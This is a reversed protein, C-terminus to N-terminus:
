TNKSRPQPASPRAPASRPIPAPKAKGAGGARAPKSATASAAPPKKAAAGTTKAPTSPASAAPTPPAPKTRATATKSAAGVGTSAPAAAAKKAPGPPAAPPKIRTVDRPFLAEQRYRPGATEVPLGRRPRWRREAERGELWTGPQEPRNLAGRALKTDRETVRAALERRSEALPIPIQRHGPGRRVGGAGSALAAGGWGDGPRPGGRGRSGSTNPRPRNPPNGKKVAIGGPGRKMGLAGLTKYAIVTKALGMLKSSGAGFISRSVWSPIKVLIWCLALFVLADVLGSGNPLGFMSVTVSPDLMVDLAVVFVLSQGLQIVFVGLTARWWMRALHETQPLAHLSLAIPAGVALVVTLAVRVIYTLLIAILMVQAGLDLLVLFTGNGGSSGLLRGLAQGATAPNITGGLVASALADSLHIMLALLAASANGAIMGVFLRPVIEKASNRSQVTGHTMVIVAGALVLLVYFADALLAMQTWLAAVRPMATVDPTGLLTSGLLDLMPTLAETVLSQFWGDVAKQIQGPIDYWSPNDDSGTVPAVTTVPSPATASGTPAGPGLGIGPGSSGASPIPTPSTAPDALIIRSVSPASAQSATAAQAAPAGAVALSAAIVVGALLRRGTQPRVPRGGFPPRRTSLDAAAM